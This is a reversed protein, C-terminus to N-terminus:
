VNEAEREPLSDDVDTLFVEIVQVATSIGLKVCLMILSNDEYGLALLFVIATNTSLSVAKKVKLFWRPTPKSINKISVNGM